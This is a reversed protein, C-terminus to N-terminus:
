ATRRLDAAPLRMLNRYKAVTRRAVRIGRESLRKALVVDSLPNGPMESAIMEKLMARVAAASCHGGSNTELQRPFFHKFEFLGRPTAMYKNSTARSITSEHLGLEDAIQRLSLPLLAIEGKSFFEKQRQVISEAVRTITTFRQEANRLLWRAEQLQQRMAPHGSSRARRLLQVYGRNLRAKPLMAPNVVTTLKGESELVIVDPVVYSQPADAYSSCPRPDLKRILLQAERLDTEICDFRKLLSSIDRRALMELGDRVMILALRRGPHDHEITLLQLILCERLDRAGVGAPEFEQVLKIAAEIEDATLGPNVGLALASEEVKGRLYGDDDLTEIVVDAALRERENLPQSYLQGRLHERLNAPRQAYRTADHEEDADNAQRAPATGGPSADFPDKLALNSDDTESSSPMSLAEAPTPAAIAAEPLSAEVADASVVPDNAAVTGGLGDGQGDDHDPEELFPNSSLATEMEQTFETSSMQLIRVAQQMRLSATIQQRALMLMSTDPM